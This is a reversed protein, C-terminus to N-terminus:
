SEGNDPNENVEWDRKSPKYLIFSRGRVEVIEGKTEIALLRAVEEASQLVIRHLRVKVVEKGELQKKAEEVLDPNVGNKGVWLTPKEPSFERKLRRLVRKTALYNV